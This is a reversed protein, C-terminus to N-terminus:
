GRGNMIHGGEMTTINMTDETRTPMEFNTVKLEWSVKALGLEKLRVEPGEGRRRWLREM